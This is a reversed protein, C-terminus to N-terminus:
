RIPLLAPLLPPIAASPDRHNRPMGVKPGINSGVRLIAYTKPPSDGQTPRIACCISPQITRRQPSSVRGRFLAWNPLQILGRWSEFGPPELNSTLQWFARGLKGLLEFLDEVERRGGAM